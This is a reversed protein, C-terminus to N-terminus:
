NSNKRAISQIRDLVKNVLAGSAGERANGAVVSLGQSFVVNVTLKNPLVHIFCFM